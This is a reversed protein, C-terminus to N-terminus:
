RHAVQRGGTLVYEEVCPVAAGMRVPEGIALSPLLAECAEPAPMAVTAASNAELVFARLCGAAAFPVPQGTAVAELAGQCLDAQGVDPTESTFTVPIWGADSTPAPADNQAWASNVMGGAGLAFALATVAATRTLATTSRRM